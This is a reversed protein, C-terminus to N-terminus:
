TVEERQVMVGGEHIESGPRGRNSSVRCLRRELRGGVRGRGAGRHAPRPVARSGGCRRPYVGGPADCGAGGAAREGSYSGRQEAAAPVAVFRTREGTAGSRLVRRRRRLRGRPVRRRQVHDVRHAVVLPAPVDVHGRRLLQESAPLAPALALRPRTTQRPTSAPHPRRPARRPTTPPHLPPARLGDQPRAAAPCVVHVDRGGRRHGEPRVERRRDRPQVQQHPHRALRLPADEGRDPREGGRHGLDQAHAPQGRVGRRRHLVRGEPVDGGEGARHM